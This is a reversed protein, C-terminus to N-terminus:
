AAPEEESAPRKVIKDQSYEYVEDLDDVHSLVFDLDRVQGSKMLYRASAGSVLSQVSQGHWRDMIDYTERDEPVFGEEVLLECLWACCLQDEERFEARSGAGILGVSEYSEALVRATARYNRLCAVYMAQEPTGGCMVRTGSTSLLIAPRHIDTREAIDAPSNNLHFGFPVKGGLEGVLLADPMLTAMAVAEDMSPVPYCDRGANVITAATTTARIVDIAVIADRHRHRPLSEPFCDIKVARRMPEDEGIRVGARDNASMM